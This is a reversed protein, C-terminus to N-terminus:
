KREVHVWKWKEKKAAVIHEESDTGAYHNAPNYTQNDFIKKLAIREVDSTEHIKLRYVDVVKYTQSATSAITEVYLCIGKRAAIDGNKIDAMLDTASEGDPLTWYMCITMEAPFGEMATNREVNFYRFAMEKNHNGTSDQPDYYPWYVWENDTSSPLPTYAINARLYKWTNSTTSADSSTLEEQIAGALSDAAEINRASALNKNQSAYLNYSVLILSFIFVMLVAILVITLMMAAGANNLKRKERKNM